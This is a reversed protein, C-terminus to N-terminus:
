DTTPEVNGRNRLDALGKRYAVVPYGCVCYVDGNRNWDGVARHSATQDNKAYAGYGKAHRWYLPYSM